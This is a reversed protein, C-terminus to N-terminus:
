ISVANLLLLFSIDSTFRFYLSLSETFFLALGRSTSLDGASGHVWVATRTDAQHEWGKGDAVRHSNTEKNKEEVRQKDPM